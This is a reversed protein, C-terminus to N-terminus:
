KWVLSKICDESFMQKGTDDKFKRYTEELEKKQQTRFYEIAQLLQERVKGEVDRVKYIAERLNERSVSFKEM